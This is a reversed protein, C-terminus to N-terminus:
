SLAYRLFKRTIKHKLVALSVRFNKLFYDHVFNLFVSKKYLCRKKEVWGWHQKVKEHISSWINSLHQKICRVMIKSLCIEYQANKHRYRPRSRNINYKENGAENENDNIVYGWKFLRVQKKYMKLFIEWHYLRPHLFRIIKLYYFNLM